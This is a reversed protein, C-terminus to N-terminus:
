DRGVGFVDKVGLGAYLIERLREFVQIDFKTPDEELQKRWGERIHETKAEKARSSLNKGIQRLVLLMQRGPAAKALSILKAVLGFAMSFDKEDLARGMMRATTIIYGQPDKVSYASARLYARKAEGWEEEECVFQTAAFSNQDQAYYNFLLEKIGGSITVLEPDRTLGYINEIVHLIDRLCAVQANEKGYVNEWQENRNAVEGKDKGVPYEDHITSVADLLFPMARSLSPLNRAAANSIVVLQRALEGRNEFNDRDASHLEQRVLAAAFASRNKLHINYSDRLFARQEPTLSM